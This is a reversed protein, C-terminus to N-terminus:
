EPENRLEEKEEHMVINLAGAATKIHLTYQKQPSKADVERRSGQLLDLSSENLRDNFSVSGSKMSQNMKAEIINSNPQKM